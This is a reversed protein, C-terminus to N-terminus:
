PTEDLAKEFDMNWENERKGSDLIEPPVGYDMNREGGGQNRRSDQVISVRAALQLAGIFGQIVGNHIWM